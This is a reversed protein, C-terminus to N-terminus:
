RGDKAELYRKMHLLTQNAIYHVFFKGIIQESVFKGILPIKSHLDHRIRVRVGEESPEFSWVVAMGKTFAKLHLFRVQHRKGDIEQESTWKVPFWKRKAAMIVVNKSPSRQLYKVYRYHPLIKPWISLDGAVRFIEELPARMEISNEIHMM